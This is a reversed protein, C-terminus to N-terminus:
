IKDMRMNYLDLFFFRNLKLMDVLMISKRSVLRMCMYVTAM